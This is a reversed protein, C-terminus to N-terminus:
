VVDEISSAVIGRRPSRPSREPTRPLHENVVTTVALLNSNGGGAGGGANSRVLPERMLWTAKKEIQELRSALRQASQQLSEATVRGARLPHLLEHASANDAGDVVGELEDNLKEQQEEEIDRADDDEIVAAYDVIRDYLRDVDERPADLLRELDARSVRLPKQKYRVAVRLVIANIYKVVESENLARGALTDQFNKADFFRAMNRRAHAYSRQIQLRLATGISDTQAVQEHVLAYSDTVIAVFMNVLVFFVLVMFLGFYIPALVRNGREEMEEYTFEGLLMQFCTLFARGVTRFNSLATGFLLNGTFVFGIFMIFFFIIFALLDGSAKMLTRWLMSMRLNVSLFKFVTLTGVFINAAILYYMQEASWGLDELESFDSTQDLDTIRKRFSTLRLTHTLYVCVFSLLMVKNLMDVLNWWPRTFWMLASGGRRKIWILQQLTYGIWGILGVLFLVELVLRAMDDGDLYNDARFSRMYSWPMFGGSADIEVVMTLTTFSNINANYVNVTVIVARTQADVWDSAELEAITARSVDSNYSLDVVFGDGEYTSLWGYVPPAVNERFTWVRLREGGVAASSNGTATAAPPASSNGISALYRDLDPGFPETSRLEHEYNPYCHSFFGALPASLSCKDRVRVQRVRPAGIIRNFSLIYGQEFANVSALAGVFPGRMFQWFESLEGIDDFSKYIYSDSQLFEEEIFKDRLASEMYYVRRIDRGLFIVTLFIVIFLVYFFFDRFMRRKYEDVRLKQLVRELM